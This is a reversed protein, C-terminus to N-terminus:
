HFLHTRSHEAWLRILSGNTPRRRTTSGTGTLKSRQIKAHHGRLKEAMWWERGGVVWRWTTTTNAVLGVVLKWHNWLDQLKGVDIRRFNKFQLWLNCDWLSKGLEKAKSILTYKVSYVDVYTIAALPFQKRLEVVTENLKTNFYKAVDNVPGVCGIHDVQGATIPLRDLIYPLCAVPGTNHIWFSRGGQDYVYQMFVLVTSWSCLRVPIFITLLPDFCRVTVQIITKFQNM